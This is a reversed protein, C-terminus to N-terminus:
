RKNYIKVRTKLFKHKSSTILTKNLQAHKNFIPNNSNRNQEQTQNSKVYTQNTISVGINLDMLSIKVNKFNKYICSLIKEGYERMFSMKKSDKSNSNRLHYSVNSLVFSSIIDFFFMNLQDFSTNKVNFFPNDSYRRFEEKCNPEKSQNKTRQFSEHSLLYM